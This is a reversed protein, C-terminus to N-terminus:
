FSADNALKEPQVVLTRKGVAAQFIADAQSGAQGTAELRTFVEITHIGNGVNLAIWNFANADRTRQFQEIRQDNDFNVTTQRHLRDCFVVEGNDGGKASVPVRHHDLEVWMTVRALSESVQDGTNVVNTWLACEATLSFILDTTTATRMSGTLIPPPVGPGFVDVTSASVGIKDAPQHTAGAPSLVANAIVAIAVLLLAAGPMALRKVPRPM